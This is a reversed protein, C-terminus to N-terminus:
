KYYFKYYNLLYLIYECVYITRVSITDNRTIPKSNIIINQCCIPCKIFLKHSHINVFSTWCKIHSYCNCNLCIKNNTKELCIICNDSM